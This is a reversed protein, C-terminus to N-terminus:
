RGLAEIVTGPGPLAALTDRRVTDFAPHDLAEAFYGHVRPLKGLHHARGNRAGYAFIGLIRLNRQASFAAFVTRFPEEADNSRDLYAQLTAQRLARPVEVRADTLFSVLDYAPHTLFADQYDLLGFRRIGERDPLWMLNDAHFDRLSVAPPEKLAEALLDRLVARFGALAGSDVGPYHAGAFETWAVLADADPCALAPAAEARLALLLDVCASHISATRDPTEALHANVSLEGLDELLLLGAEPDGAIIEPASFGASRLWATIRAFPEMTTDADMLIATGRDGRLRSYRRPSLDGALPLRRASEWGADALFAEIQAHRDTM